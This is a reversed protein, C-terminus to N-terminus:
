GPQRKAQLAQRRGPAVEGVIGSECAARRDDGARHDGGALQHRRGLGTPLGRIRVMRTMSRGQFGNEGPFPLLQVDTGSRRKPGGQTRGVVAPSEPKEPSESESRAAVRKAVEEPDFLLRPRVGDGITIAGLERRHQRVWAATRGLQAAVEHTTLLRRPVPDSEARLRHAIADALADISRRDLEVVVLRASEDAGFTM